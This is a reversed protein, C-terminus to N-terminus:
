VHQEWKPSKHGSEDSTKIKEAFNKSGGEGLADSRFGFSVWLDLVVKNSKTWRKLFFDCKKEPRMACNYSWSSCPAEMLECLQHLYECIVVLLPMMQGFFDIFFILFDIFVYYITNIKEYTLEVWWHWFLQIGVWNPWPPANLCNSRIHWGCSEAICLYFIAKYSKCIM